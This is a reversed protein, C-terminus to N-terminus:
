SEGGRKRTLTNLANIQAKLRSEIVSYDDIQDTSIANIIELLITNTATLATKLAQVQNELRELQKPDHM